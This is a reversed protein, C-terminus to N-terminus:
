LAPHEEENASLSAPLAPLSAQDGGGATVNRWDELSSSGCEWGSEERMAYRWGFMVIDELESFKGFLEKWTTLPSSFLRGERTGAQNM